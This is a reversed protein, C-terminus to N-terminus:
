APWETPNEGARPAGPPWTSGGPGAPRGASEQGVASSGPYRHGVVFAARGTHHHNCPEQRGAASQWPWGSRIVQTRRGVVSGEGCVVVRGGGGRPEATGCRVRRVTKGSGSQVTRRAGAARAFRRGDAGITGGCSALHDGGNRRVRRRLDDGRRPTTGGAARRGRRQTPDGEADLAATPTRQRSGKRCRSRRWASYRPRRSSREVRQRQPVDVVM